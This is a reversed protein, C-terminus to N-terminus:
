RSARLDRLGAALRAVNKTTVSAFSDDVGIHPTVVLGGDASLDFDISRVRDSLVPAGSLQVPVIDGLWYAVGVRFHETEALQATVRASEAGEDLMEQGRARLTATMNPAGEEVDRADRMQEISVGWRAEAATDTVLEWERATGEGPGGVIVRTVTPPTLEWTGSQVVGSEETLVPGHSLDSPQYVDVRIGAGDQYADLGIGALDVAPLIRDALPHMRVKVSVNEGRAGNPAVTIPTAVHGMNASVLDKVVGEATGSATYYSDEDGQHDIGLSPAPWGLLTWYLSKDDTVTFEVTGVSGGSEGAPTVAGSLLRRPEDLGMYHVEVRAGPTSLAQVQWHDEDLVFSCTSPLNHRITAKAELPANVWGVRAYDKDYVTIRLPYDMM